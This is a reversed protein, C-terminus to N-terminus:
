NQTGAKERDGLSASQLKMFEILTNVDAEPLGLRPMRVERYKKFLATAIPDKEDILKDPETIIRGLWARDRVSRFLM